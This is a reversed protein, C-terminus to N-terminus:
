MTIEMKVRHKIPRTMSFLYDLTDKDCGEVAIIVKSLDPHVRDLDITTQDPGGRSGSMQRDSASASRSMCTGPGDAAADLMAGATGEDMSISHPSVISPGSPSMLEAEFEMGMTMGMDAKSAEMEGVAQETATTTFSTLLGQLAQVHYNSDGFPDDWPDAVQVEQPLPPSLNIPASTAELFDMALASDTNLGDGIDLHGPSLHHCIPSHHVSGDSGSMPSFCTSADTLWHLSDDRSHFQSGISIRPMPPTMPTQSISRRPDMEVGPSRSQRSRMVPGDDSTGSISSTESADDPSSTSDQDGGNNSMRRM